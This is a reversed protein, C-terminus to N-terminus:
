PSVRPMDTESREIGFVHTHDLGSKVMWWGVLGQTGGLTFLLGLRPYLGMSSIAARTPARSIFVVAPVAFLIGLSRTSRPM